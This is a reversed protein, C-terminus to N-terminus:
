REKRSWSPRLSLSWTKNMEIAGAGLVSPTLVHQWSFSTLQWKHVLQQTGHVTSLMKFMADYKIRETAGM